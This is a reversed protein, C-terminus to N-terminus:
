QRPEQDEDQQGPSGLSKRLLCIKGARLSSDWPPECMDTLPTSQARAKRQQVASAPMAQGACGGRVPLRRQLSAVCSALRDDVVPHRWARGRCVTAGCFGNRSPPQQILRLLSPYLQGQPRTPGPVSSVEGRRQLKRTRRRRRVHRAQEHAMTSALRSSLFALRSRAAVARASIRCPSLKLIRTKM